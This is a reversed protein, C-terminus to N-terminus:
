IIGGSRGLNLCNFGESVLSICERIQKGPVFDFQFKSLVKAVTPGFRTAINKTCIKFLFNGLVIPRFDEVWVQGKDKPILVM